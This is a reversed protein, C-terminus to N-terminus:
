TTTEMQTEVKKYGFYRKILKAIAVFLVFAAVTFFTLTICVFAMNVANELPSNETSLVEVDEVWSPWSRNLDGSHTVRARLVASTDDSHGLCICVNRRCPVPGVSLTTCRADILECFMNLYDKAHRCVETWNRGITIAVVHTSNM